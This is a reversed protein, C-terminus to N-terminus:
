RSRQMKRAHRLAIDNRKRVSMLSATCNRTPIGQMRAFRPIFRMKGRTCAHVYARWIECTGNFWRLVQIRSIASLARAPLRVASDGLHFYERYAYAYAFRRERLFLTLHIRVIKARRNNTRERWFRLHMRCRPYYCDAVTERQQDSNFM